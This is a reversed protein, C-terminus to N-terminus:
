ACLRRVAMGLMAMGAGLTALLLAAFKGLNLPREDTPLTGMCIWWPRLSSLVRYQGVVDPGRKELRQRFRTRELEPPLEKELDPLELLPFASTPSPSPSFEQDPPATQMVEAIERPRNLLHSMATEFYIWPREKGMSPSYDREVYLRLPDVSLGLMQVGLSSALLAVVLSRRWKAAGAPAYLWLAGFMPTLLRPGWCAGGLEGVFDARCCCYTFFAAAGLTLAVRIKSDGNRGSALGRLCLLLSPWYWIAGAGFSVSLVAAAALQHNAFDSGYLLARIQEHAANKDFPFKFRDYAMEGLVGALLGAVAIAARSFRQPRSAASDDQLALALPLFFALAPVFNYALGILLGTAIAGGAWGRGLVAALLASILVMTGVSEEFTSTGYYWAPTCVVGGAGWLIASIPQCGTSRFWLAYLISLLGCAVAGHLTFFFQRREESPPGTKDAIWVSAAAILCPPLRDHSYLKAEAGPYAGWWIRDDRLISDGHEVLSRGVEFRTQAGVNDIRGPGSM